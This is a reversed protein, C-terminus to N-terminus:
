LIMHDKSEIAQEKGNEKHNNRALSHANYTSLLQMNGYISYCRRLQGHWMHSFPPPPSPPPPPLPYCLFFSFFYSFLPFILRRKGFPFLFGSIRRTHRRLIFSRLGKGYVYTSQSQRGLIAAQCGPSLVQRWARLPPQSCYQSAGEGGVSSGAGREIPYLPIHM